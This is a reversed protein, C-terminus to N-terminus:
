KSGVMDGELKAHGCQCLIIQGSQTRSGVEQALEQVDKKLIKARKEINQQTHALLSFGERNAPTGFDTMKSPSGYRTTPTATVSGPPPMLVPYQSQTDGQTNREPHMMGRLADTMEPVQSSQTLAVDNLIGTARNPTSNKDLPTPLIVGRESALSTVRSTIDKAPESWDIGAYRSTKSIFELTGPLREFSDESNKLHSISFVANHFSSGLCLVNSTQEWGDVRPFYLDSNPGATFGDLRKSRDPPTDYVLEMSLLRKKPLDGLGECLTNVGRLLTQLATNGAQM